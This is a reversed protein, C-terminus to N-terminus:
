FIQLKDLREAILDFPIEATIIKTQSRANKVNNIKRITSEIKEKDVGIIETLWILTEPRGFSNYIKRASSNPKHRFGKVGNIPQYLCHMTLHERGCSRWRQGKQEFNSDFNNALLFM